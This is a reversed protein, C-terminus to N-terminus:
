KSKKSHDYLCKSCRDEQAGTAMIGCLVYGATFATPIILILWWASIM